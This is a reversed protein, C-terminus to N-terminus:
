EQVVNKDNNFLKKPSTKNKLDSNKTVCKLKIKENPSSVRNINSIISPSPSNITSCGKVEAILSGKCFVSQIDQM